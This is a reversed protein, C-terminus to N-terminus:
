GPRVAGVYPMSHLPSTTVGSGPNAAHVIQGNGIYMGVHSIPQYYFVLDGPQLQSEPIHPGSSYQASSSHPLSVGAQRWAAMTLGSCDYSDPGTAGWVYAKGRQAMAFQLATAGRGSAGPIPGDYTGATMAKRAKAQLNDLVEKAQAARSDLRAKQAAMRKRVRDAARTEHDVAQKRLHLRDLETAYDALVQKQQATYASVASLNDIFSNPDKSLVVQSATSLAGSQFNDVMMGAVRGRMGDVKAQQAKLDANLSKLRVQSQHLEARAENLRESAVEANHFLDHARAQAHEIDQQNPDAAAPTAGVLTTSVTAVLAAIGASVRALRYKRGDPM